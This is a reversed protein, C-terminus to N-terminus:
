RDPYRELPKTVAAEVAWAGILDASQGRVTVTVTDATVTVDVRAASLDGAASLFNAAANRAAESENGESEVGAGVEAAYDAAAQALSRSHGWLISQMVLMLAILLVPFLVALETTTMGRETDRADRREGRRLARAVTAPWAV